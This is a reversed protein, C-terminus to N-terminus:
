SYFIHKAVKSTSSQKKIKGTKGSVGLKFIM